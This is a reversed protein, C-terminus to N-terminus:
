ADLQKIVAIASAAARGLRQDRGKHWRDLTARLKAARLSARVPAPIGNRTGLCKSLALCAQYAAEDSLQEGVAEILALLPLLLVTGEVKSLTWIASARSEKLRFALRLLSNAVQEQEDGSLRLRMQERTLDRASITDGEELNSRDLILGLQFLGYERTDFDSADLQGLLDELSRTRRRRKM